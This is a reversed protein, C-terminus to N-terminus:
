IGHRLVKTVLFNYAQFGTIGVAVLAWLVGFIGAAPIALFLGIFVFITGLIM